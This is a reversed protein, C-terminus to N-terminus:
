LQVIVSNYKVSALWVFFKSFHLQLHKSCKEGSWLLIVGIYRSQRHYCERRVASRGFDLSQSPHKTHFSNLNWWQPSIPWIPLIGEAPSHSRQPFLVPFIPLHSSLLRSLPLSHSGTCHSGWDPGSVSSVILLRTPCEWKQFNFGKEFFYM